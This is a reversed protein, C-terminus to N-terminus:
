RRPRLSRQSKQPTEASEATEAPLPLNTQTSDCVIVYTCTIAGEPCVEDCRACYTCNFPQVFSPGDATMEVAHGPCQEACIGCRTCLDSNIQPLAWEEM